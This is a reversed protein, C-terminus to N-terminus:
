TKSAARSSKILCDCREKTHIDARSAKVSRKTTLTMKVEDNLVHEVVQVLLLFDAGRRVSPKDESWVFRNLLFEGLEM